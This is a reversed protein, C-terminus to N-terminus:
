LCPQSWCKWTHHLPCRPGKSNPLRATCVPLPLFSGAPYEMPLIQRFSIVLWVQLACLASVSGLLTQPISRNGLCLLPILTTQPSSARAACDGYGATLTGTGTLGTLIVKATLKISCGSRSIIPHPDAHPSASSLHSFFPGDSGGSPLEHIAWRVWM